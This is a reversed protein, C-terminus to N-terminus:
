PWTQEQLQWEWAWLAAEGGNVKFEVMHGNLSVAVAASGDRATTESQAAGGVFATQNAGVRRVVAKYEYFAGRNSQACMGRAIFFFCRPQDGAEMSVTHVTHNSTNSTSATGSAIVPRHPDGPLGDSGPWMM